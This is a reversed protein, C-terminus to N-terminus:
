AQAKLKALISDLRAKRGGFLDLLAEELVEYADLVTDFPIAGEHSAKNGISRLADLTEHHNGISKEFEQLRSNLSRWRGSADKRDIGFHDLTREVSIRLKNIASGRDAWMLTFSSLIPKRVEDPTKTPISIVPVEAVFAKPYFNELDVQEGNQDYDWGPLVDGAMSVVEGCWKTSCRFLVSFRGQQSYHDDDRVPDYATMLTDNIVRLAGTRCRPCPFAPFGHKLYRERWIRRNM